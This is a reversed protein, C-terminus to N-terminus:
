VSLIAKSANHFYFEGNTRYRQETIASEKEKFMEDVICKIDHESVEVGIVM